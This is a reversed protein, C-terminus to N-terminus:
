ETLFNEARKPVRFNMVMKMLSRWQDRDQALLMWDVDESGIEGLDMRIQRGM